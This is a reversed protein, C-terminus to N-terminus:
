RYLGAEWTLGVEWISRNLLHAEWNDCPRLFNAILNNASTLWRQADRGPLCCAQALKTGTSNLKSDLEKVGRQGKTKVLLAPSLSPQLTEKLNLTSDIPMASM